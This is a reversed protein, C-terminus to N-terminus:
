QVVRSSLKRSALFSATFNMLSWIDTLTSVSPLSQMRFQALVHREDFIMPPYRAKQTEKSRGLHV